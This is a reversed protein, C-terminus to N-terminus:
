VTKETYATSPVTSPTSVTAPVLCVGYTVDPTECETYASEIMPIPLLGFFVVVGSDMSPITKPTYVTM